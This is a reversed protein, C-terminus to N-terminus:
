KAEVHVTLLDYPHVENLVVHDNCSFGLHPDHIRTAIHNAAMQDIFVISSDIVHLQIILM